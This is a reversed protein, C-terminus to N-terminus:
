LARVEAVKEEGEAGASWIRYKFYFVAICPTFFWPLILMTMQLMTLSYDRVVQLFLVGECVLCLIIFIIILNRYLNAKARPRFM